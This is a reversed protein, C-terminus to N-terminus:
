VERWSVIDRSLLRVFELAADIMAQDWNLTVNGKLTTDVTTSSEALVSGDVTVTGTMTLEGIVYIIGDFDVTGSFHADGSIILIGSGLLNGAVTLTEGAPVDVWTIGSVPSAFTAPTYLHTANQKLDAKTYGFLAAFDLTSHEKAKDDPNIDVSGKIVLDTTTEIAYQFNSAPISGTRIDASVRRTVVSGPALAVSGTSVIRYLGPGTLTATAAYTYNSSGISGSASLVPLQQIGEALGAEALWFARMSAVHRKSLTNENITKFYFASSLLSLALVIFLGMVLVAGRKRNM